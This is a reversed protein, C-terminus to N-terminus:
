DHWRLRPRSKRARRPTVHNCDAGAAFYNVHQSNDSGWYGVLATNGPAVGRALETLDNDAWNRGPAIYLEHMHDDAGIFNVHVSSDSGWYGDLASGFKPKTGAM